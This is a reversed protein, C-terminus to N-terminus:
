IFLNLDLCLQTNRACISIIVIYGLYVGESVIEVAQKATGISNSVLLEYEGFEGMVTVTFNILAHFGDTDVTRDFVRLHVRTPTVQSSYSMQTNKSESSTINASYIRNLVVTVTSTSYIKVHFSSENRLQAAVKLTNNDAIIIPPATYLTAHHHIYVCV